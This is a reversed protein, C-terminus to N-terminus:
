RKLFVSGLKFKVRRREKGAVTFNASSAVFRLTIMRDANLLDAAVRLADGQKLADGQQPSGTQSQWIVCAYADSCDVVVDQYRLRIGYGYSVLLSL